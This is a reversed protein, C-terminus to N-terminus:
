IEKNEIDVAQSVTWQGTPHTSRLNPLNQCARQKALCLLTGFSLKCIYTIQPWFNDKTLEKIKM